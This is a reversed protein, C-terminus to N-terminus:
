WGRYKKTVPPGMYDFDWCDECVTLELPKGIKIDNLTKVRGLDHGKSCLITDTKVKANLCQYLQRKPKM